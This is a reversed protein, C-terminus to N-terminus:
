RVRRRSGPPKVQKEIRHELRGSVGGMVADKHRAYIEIYIDNELESGSKNAFQIFMAPASLLFSDTYIRSRQGLVGATGTGGSGAASATFSVGVTSATAGISVFNTGGVTLIEYETGAVFSGVAVVTSALVTMSTRAANLSDTFLTDVPIMGWRFAGEDQVTQNYSLGQWVSVPSLTNATVGDFFFAVQIFQGVYGDLYLVTTDADPASALYSETSSLGVTRVSDLTTVSDIITLYNVALLVAGTNARSFANQSVTGMSSTFGRTRIIQWAGGGSTALGDCVWLLLLIWCMKKMDIGFM